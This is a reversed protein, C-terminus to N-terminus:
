QTVMYTQQYDQSVTGDFYADLVVVGGGDLTIASLMPESNPDWINVDFGTDYSTDQNFSTFTYSYGSDDGVITDGVNFSGNIDMLIVLNNADFYNKVRATNNGSRVVENYRFGM